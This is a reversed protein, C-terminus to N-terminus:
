QYRPPQYNFAAAQLAPADALTDLEPAAALPDPPPVAATAAVPFAATPRASDFVADALALTDKLKGRDLAHNAVATRVERPLKERWLKSIVGAVCCKHLDQHTPCLINILKKALQSPKGVLQMDRALRYASEPKPGFTEWIRTKMDKYADGAETKNLNLLDKLDEIIDPPLLNHLLLRKQWQSKVGSNEMQMELQTFFFRVDNRDFVLKIKAIKTHIDAPDKDNQEDYNTMASSSGPSPTEQGEQSTGPQVTPYPSVGSDTTENEPDLQGAGAILGAAWRAGASILGSASAATSAAAKAEKARRRHDAKVRNSRQSAKIAKERAEPKYNGSRTGRPKHALNCNFVFFFEM